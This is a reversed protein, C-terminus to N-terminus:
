LQTNTRSTAPVRARIRGARKRPEVALAESCSKPRRGRAQPSVNWPARTRFFKVTLLLLQPWVAIIGLAGDPASRFVTQRRASVAEFQDPPICAGAPFRREAEDTTTRVRPLPALALSAAKEANIYAGPPKAQWPRLIAVNRDLPLGLPRGVRM